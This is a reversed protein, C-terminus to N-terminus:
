RPKCHAVVHGSPTVVTLCGDSSITVARSPLTAGPDLSGNCTLSETGSPQQVVKGVGTASGIGPITVLCTTPVAAGGGGGPAAV